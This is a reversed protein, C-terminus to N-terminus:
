RLIAGRGFITRYTMAIERSESQVGYEDARQLMAKDGCALMAGCVACVPHHYGKLNDDSVPGQKVGRERAYECAFVLASAMEDDTVKHEPEYEVGLYKIANAAGDIGRAALRSLQYLKPDYRCPVPLGAAKHVAWLRAIWYAQDCLNEYGCHTLTQWLDEINEGNVAQTLYLRLVEKAEGDFDPAFKSAFADISDSM